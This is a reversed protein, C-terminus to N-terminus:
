TIYRWLALCFWLLSCYPHYCIIVQHVWPYMKELHLWCCEPRGGGSLRKFIWLVFQLIWIHCVPCSDSSSTLQDSSTGTALVNIGCSTHCPSSSWLALHEDGFRWMCRWHYTPHFLVPFDPVICWSRSALLIFIIGAPIGYWVNLLYKFEQISSHSWETYQVLAFSLVLTADALVGLLEYGGHPSNWHLVIM